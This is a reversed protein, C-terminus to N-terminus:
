CLPFNRRPDDGHCSHHRIFSSQILRDKTSLDPLVAIPSSAWSCCCASPSSPAPKLWGTRRRRAAAHAKGPGKGPERRDQRIREAARNKGRAGARQGFAGAHRCLLLGPALSGPQCPCGSNELHGEPEGTLSSEDICLDNARLLVGDAPIKLGEWILMLDGPVLDESSINQERGDRIVRIQPASLDRLAALTKDTKHEQFADIGIMAAVFVLMIAGDRPEGLIFYVISAALLLLFMPECVTHVLKLALSEKKKQALVNKGYKQGARQGAPHQARPPSNKEIDM